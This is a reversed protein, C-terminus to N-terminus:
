KELKYTMNSADVFTMVDDKKTATGTLDKGYKITVTAEKEDFEWSAEYEDGLLNVVASGSKNLRIYGANDIGYEELEDLDMVFDDGADIETINWKGIFKTRESCATLAFLMVAIIALAFIKKKM